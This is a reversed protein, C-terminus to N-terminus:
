KFTVDALELKGQTTFDPAYSVRPGVRIFSELHFLMVDPIIDQQIKLNAEQFAKRREDGTSTSGKELLKDLAPDAINSLDGSSHYYVMMTYFADGAANDHTEFVMTPTPRNTPFPKHRTASLQIKDVMELKVNLGIQQWSQILTEFLENSNALMFDSGYMVIPKDVPVGAARAEEVLRTAEEADYPWVKLDPNYGNINSMMYQSAPLVGKSLITGVFSGRDIALNLAKRVRVDNLPAQDMFIRVRSTDANLYGFDTDPNVADQPAIQMAIDAEGVAVMSARLAPESRWVYTAQQIQPKKGWYGDFQKLVLSQTPNWSTLVYPGTGVPHKSAETTPTNPSTIGIQSLTLPMLPMPQKSIIDLTLDDVPKVELTQGAFLRDKDRCLLAPAFLRDIAAKVGASNFSAGDQFKVNKRLNIRWTLPDIQKWSEALLPQPTSDKPDLKILSEVVNQRLVLGIYGTSMMHCPEVVDVASPMVITIDKSKDQAQAASAVALLAMGALIAKLKPM